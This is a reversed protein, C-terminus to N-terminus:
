RLRLSRRFPQQLRSKFPGLPTPTLGTAVAQGGANTTVSLVRAGHFTARGGRIAFSVTAGVVPQDNKDRVEVIPAIATRQQIVNVADEGAVVVIRLDNRSQAPLTLALGTVFLFAIALQSSADDREMAARIMAGALLTSCRSRVASVESDLRAGIPPAM